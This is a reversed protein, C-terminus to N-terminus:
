RPSHEAKLKHAILERLAAKNLKSANTLPFEQLVEIREPWKFKAMGAAQLFTGLETTTPAVAGDRLTVFACIKEGYVKDPM